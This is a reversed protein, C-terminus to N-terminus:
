FILMSLISTVVVLLLMATFYFGLMMWYKIFTKLRGQKYYKQLTRYGFALIILFFLGLLGPHLYDMLLFYVSMVIFSFGHWHYLVVLHEVVFYHHRIYLLKMFLSLLPLLVFLMWVMNAIGVRLLAIPDELSKITQKLLVRNFPNSIEHKEALEEFSLRAVDKQTIVIPDFKLSDWDMAMITFEAQESLQASNIDSSERVYNSLSDILDHSEQTSVLAPHYIEFSDILNFMDDKALQIRSQDLPTVEMHIHDITVISIITLHVVALIFFVRLPHSYSKHKGEFYAISLRAPVFIDRFTRYFKSDLNFVSDFFESVFQGVSIRGDTDKQGCQPCYLAGDPLHIACNRCFRDSSIHPPESM